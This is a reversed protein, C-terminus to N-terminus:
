PWDKELGAYRALLRKEGVGDFDVVVKLDRGFGSVTVVSGSGFTKHVVREGPAFSPLDQNLAEDPDTAAEQSADELLNAPGGQDRVMAAFREAARGSNLAEVAMAEGAEPDDVLGGLWLM